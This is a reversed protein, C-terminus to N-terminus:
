RLAAVEELSGKRIGLWTPDWGAIQLSSLVEFAPAQEESYGSALVTNPVYYTGRRPVVWIM